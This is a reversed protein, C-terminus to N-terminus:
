FPWWWPKPTTKKAESAKVDSPAVEGEEHLVQRVWGDIRRMEREITPGSYEGGHAPGEGYSPKKQDLHLSFIIDGNPADEVYLHYRPYFESTLRLVFSEERTVPDRFAAYGARRLVLLPNRVTSRDYTVKM